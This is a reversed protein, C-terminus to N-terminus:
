DAQRGLQNYVLPCHGADCSQRESATANIVRRQIRVAIAQIEWWEGSSLLEFEGTVIKCRM